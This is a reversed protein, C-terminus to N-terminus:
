KRRGEVWSLSLRVAERRAEKEREEESASDDTLIEIGAEHSSSDGEASEEASSSEEPESVEDVRPILAVGLDYQLHQLWKQVKEEREEENFEGDTGEEVESESEDLKEEGAIFSLSQPADTLIQRKRLGEESNWFQSVETVKEKGYDMLAIGPHRTWTLRMPRSKGFLEMEREGFRFVAKWRSLESPGVLGPRSAADGDVLSMRLIDWEDHVSVPYLFAMESVVPEGAGFRYTEHERVSMWPVGMANLTKQFLEHWLRGGVSNKCGSDAIALGPIRIHPLEEGGGNFVEMPMYWFETVLDRPPGVLKTQLEVVTGEYPIDELVNGYADKTVRRCIQSPHPGGANVTKFHTCAKDERIWVRVQDPLDAPPEHEVSSTLVGHHASWYIVHKLDCRKCRAFHGDGNATWRLDDFPHTCTTQTETPVPAARSPILRGNRLGKEYLARRFVKMNKDRVPKPLSPDMPPVIKQQESAAASAESGGESAAASSAVGKMREGGYAYVPELPVYPPLRSAVTMFDYERMTDAMLKQKRIMETYAEKQEEEQLAAHLEKKDEKSMTPLAAVLERTQLRVKEGGSGSSSSPRGPVESRAVEKVREKPVEFSFPVKPEDEADVFSWGDDKARKSRSMMRDQLLEHGCEGCFKMTAQVPWSCRPCQGPPPVPKEDGSVMFIEHCKKEKKMPPTVEAVFTFHTTQMPRAPKVHPQDKGSKVNPCERDGRWHGVMGCSSCSTAQKRMDVSKKKAENPKPTSKWGRSKRSEATKQKARWGAAFIEKIEDAEYVEMEDEAEVEEEEEDECPEDDENPEDDQIPQEEVEEELDEGEEGEHEAVHTTHVKKKIFVKKKQYSAAPKGDGGGDRNYQPKYPKKEDEHIRGCRIRLAKEIALSDYVAGAAYFCDHKERRTLSAKQLLKQAWAKDSIKTDPDIRYYQARLRRMEALYHAMSEGPQRRCRELEKDAREFLEAESEGFAEDLVKWLLQLGGEGTYSTIPHQEVVDRAERRTSLYVLMALENSELHYLQQQAQITRKWKLYRSRDGFYEEIKVSGLSSKQRHGEEAHVRRRLMSKIESTAPTSPAVSDGDEPLESGGDGDEPGESSPPDGPSGEKTKKKPKRKQGSNQESRPVESPRQWSSSQNSSAVGAGPMGYNGGQAGCPFSWAGPPWPFFSPPAMYNPMFGVGVGHGPVGSPVHGCGCSPGHALPAGHMYPMGSGFMPPPPTAHGIFAGAMSTGHCGNCGTCGNAPGVFGPPAHCTPNPGTAHVSQSFSESPRTPEARQTAERDVSGGGVDQSRGGWPDERQWPDSEEQPVPTRVAADAEEAAAGDAVGDAMAAEAAAASSGHSCAMASNRLLCGLKFLM